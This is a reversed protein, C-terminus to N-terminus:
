VLLITPLTLHTYSVSPAGGKWPEGPKSGWNTWGEPTVTPNYTPVASTTAFHTDFGHQSPPSFIGRSGGDAERVWGIHWKGFFGTRYGKSKLMEAVTIEGVRMGGTHAALIGYRFPYRGTLCSGRTPSCLPAAAYFRDFKVGAAAMADLNPTHIEANGNFGVDGWGQDDSMILIVNPTDTPDDALAVAPLWLSATTTLICALSLLSKIMTEIPRNM